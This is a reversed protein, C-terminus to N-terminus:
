MIAHGKNVKQTKALTVTEIKLTNTSSRALTDDVPFLTLRITAREGEERKNKKRNEEGVAKRTFETHTRV